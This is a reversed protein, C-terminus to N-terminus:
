PSVGFVSAWGRKTKTKRSPDAIFEAIMKFAALRKDQTLLLYTAEVFAAFDTFQFTAGRLVMSGGVLPLSSCDEPVRCVFTIPVTPLNLGAFSDVAAELRDWDVPKCTIEYLNGLAGSPLVEWIDSPKNSTTNTGFVSANLGGVNTFTGDNSRLSALLLGVIYQPMTGGEPYDLAFRALRKAIEIPADGDIPPLEIDLTQIEDAYEIMRQLFMMVLDDRLAEDDWHRNIRRIYDVAALAADEPERGEAWKEDLVQVNKAVNLPASAGTPIRHRKLVPRIGQEFIGRPSISYFETSTNIDSRVFKGLMATLTVGRFGDTRIPILRELVARENKYRDLKPGEGARVRAILCELQDSIFANRESAKM